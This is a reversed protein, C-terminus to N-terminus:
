SELSGIELYASKVIEQGYTRELRRIVFHGKAMSQFHDMFITNIAAGGMAGLLPVAEAAAKESVIVGFRSAIQAIVRVVAPASEQALGRETLYAAAESITRALAARVVFYGTEAADDRVSRGGLAFVELCALKGAPENVQEGESQAIDAISRLMFITSVPLEVPLAALGFAGGAAGTAAVVIKYLIDSSATRETGELSKIAVDQAKELATRTAAQVKINWGAPLLRFGKEIPAGLLNVAKAAFGPNELLQRAHQLDERDQSSLEM